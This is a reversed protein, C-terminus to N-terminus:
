RNPLGGQDSERGSLFVVECGAQLAILRVKEQLEQEAQKMLGGELLERKARRELSRSIRTQLREPMADWVLDEPDFQVPSTTELRLIKILIVQDNGHSGINPAVHFVDSPFFVICFLNFEQEIIGKGVSIKIHWIGPAPRNRGKMLHEAEDLM